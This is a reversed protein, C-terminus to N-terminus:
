FFCDDPDYIATRSPVGDIEGTLLKLRDDRYAGLVSSIERILLDSRYPVCMCCSDCGYPTTCGKLAELMNNYVTIRMGEPGFDRLLFEKIDDDFTFEALREILALDDETIYSMAMDPM